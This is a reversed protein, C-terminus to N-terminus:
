RIFEEGDDIRYTGLPAPVAPDDSAKFHFRGEVSEAVSHALLGLPIAEPCARECEMCSGCRGAQHLIRMVQWAENGELTPSPKIWQPQQQSAMCQTCYCLPCVQRCAYCRVCRSLQEHWYARRESQSMADLKAVLEARARNAPPAPQAEGVLYDFLKPERNDCAACRPSVNEESLVALQEPSDLVGGCRVAVIVLNERAIQNERILGALTRADCGKVVIAPKGLAAVHGRQPKLYTVLNQVCRADFVLKGAQEPDTIFCPRVGRPGEEYGIVVQVIEERLLRAALEQLEKM